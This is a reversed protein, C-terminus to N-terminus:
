VKGEKEWKKELERISKEDFGLHHGVEHWVVRKIFKKIIEEQNLSSSEHGVEQLAFKEITSKYITIKDPLVPVFGYGGGRRLKSVGEYLGFLSNNPSEGPELVIELNDLQKRINKPLQEVAQEICKEFEAHTMQKVFVLNLFSNIGKFGYFM